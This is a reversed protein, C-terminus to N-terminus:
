FTYRLPNKEFGEPPVIVVECSEPFYRAYEVQDDFHIDVLNYSCYDGKSRLWIKEDMWWSGNRYEMPTKIDLHHDVISFHHTFSIKNEYITQIAKAWPQGTIIHIEHGKFLWKQTLEAFLKPYIDITQHIDVGIKM